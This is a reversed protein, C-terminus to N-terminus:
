PRNKIFLIFKNVQQNYTNKHTTLDLDSTHPHWPPNLGWQHSPKMIPEYRLPQLISPHNRIVKSIPPALTPEFRVLPLTRHLIWVESIPFLGSPNLGWQWLPFHWFPNLGWQDTSFHWFPNFGWQDTFFHWFPGMGTSGMQFRYTIWFDIAGSSNLSRILRRVRDSQHSGISKISGIILENLSRNNNM